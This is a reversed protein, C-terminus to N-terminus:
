TGEAIGVLPGVKLVAHCNTEPYFRMGRQFAKNLTRMIASARHVTHHDLLSFPFFPIRSRSQNVMRLIGM